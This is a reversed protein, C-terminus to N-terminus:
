GDIRWIIIEEFFDGARRGTRRNVHRLLKEEARYGAQSAISEYLNNKDYVVIVVVGNKSLSQRVNAFVKVTDTVYDAQAKKSTGNAAAGIESKENLPLGLLEYAYRHQEHYDILGVYPPSTVVADIEPFNVVRSDGNIIEVKAQKRIQSYEKIRKL